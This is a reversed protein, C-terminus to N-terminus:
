AWLDSIDVEGLAGMCQTVAGPSTESDSEGGQRLMHKAGRKLLIPKPGTENPNEEPYIQTPQDQDTQTKVLEHPIESTLPKGSEGVEMPVDFSQTPGRGNQVKRLIDNRLGMETVCFARDYLGPMVSVPARRGVTRRNEEAWGLQASCTPFFNRASHTTLKVGSFGIEESITRISKLVM